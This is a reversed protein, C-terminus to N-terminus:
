GFIVNETLTGRLFWNGSGDVFAIIEGAKNQIIFSNPKPVMEQDQNLSGKLLMDGEPNTIVALVDTANQVIFDNGDAAVLVNQTLNGKIGANGFSDIVMLKNDNNDRIEFTEVAREVYSMGVIKIENSFNFELINEKKTLVKVTYYGIDDCNYNEVYISRVLASTQVLDIFKVKSGNVLNFWVGETEILDNKNFVEFEGCRLELIELDDATSLNDHYMESYLSDVASITLNGIGSTEFGVTWNEKGIAFDSLEISLREPEKVSVKFVDSVVQGFSDSATISTLRDGTFGYDPIVYAFNGEFRITVNDMSDYSYVLADNDNDSFYDSLDLTRNDNETLNIDGINKVLIPEDNAVIEEILYEIEDINLTTNELEVVLTYSTANGKFLCTEMCVDEFEILGELFKATLNDWSSYAIESYPEDASLDYDVYLVQSFVINDNTSGYSGYSLFLGDNWLERSSELDVFACCNENGFCAFTSEQNDVSYVEYRTCLKSEDADWNFSSGDVGFDIVGNLSEVGDDNADYVENNGYDLNVDITKEDTENVVTENIPGEEQEEFEAEIKIKVGTSNELSAFLNDILGNQIETVDGKVTKNITENYAELEIEVNNRTANIDLILLDFIGQQGGDLTGEIETNINGGELVAFGTVGFIGSPKEVLQSSDFILYRVGNDEIYVKAQGQEIKSGSIKVGELNGPNVLEWIYSDSENFELNVNDTYNIQKEVAVFSTITPGLYYAGVLLLALVVYVGMVELFLKVEVEEHSLKIKRAM